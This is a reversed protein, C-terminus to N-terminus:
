FYKMLLGMLLTFNLPKSIYDNCGAKLAKERDDVKGFATQAIIVVETNCQRIRRTAEYGDMDPMEIDMMVLDIDPNNYCVSVAEAGTRAILIEKSMKKVATTILFESIEDDEVILIKLNKAHSQVGNGSVHNDPANEMEQDTKYPITFFFTSGKDVESEAWITGGHKETFDKCLILGLGTSPEGDTGKRHTQEDLRFLKDQMVKSMGIGTDRVSVVVFNGPIKKAAITIEGGNPTFKVANFVLNRMLSEIMQEDAKVVLDEPIQLKISIQKKDADDQILMISSAVEDALLFSEPKFSILGRQMRSWELLNELLHFLMNASKRMSVAFMKIEDLTLSPLEEEMMRTLGLFANFPSRLDHAIISFFKDKEANIKQLEENKRKIEEEALKRNSINTAFVAIGKVTPYVRIEFDIKKSDIEFINEFTRSHQSLLVESYISEAKRTFSTDPFLDHFSKGIATQAPILLISESAKNWYICHLNKDMEFFVDTISDALERSHKESQRLAEEAQKYDTIDRNSERRGLWMGKEDHVTTCSHSIWRIIGAPTIIRFDIEANEGKAEQSTSRYHEIVKPKDDPHTIEILFDPDAMFEATTYGTIRECSSSVYRYTGDPLRWAEWNYTFDAITRFKEESIKLAEEVQKNETIDIATVFCEDEDEIFIGSLFVNMTPKDQPKLIVECWERTNCTFVNQLFNRFAPKTDDSVYYSFKNYKLISREKGLMAAGRLNLMSIKGEKSLTFYGAPAFDYLETYKQAAVQAIQAKARELEKNQMELEVQYVQLEHILKLAEDESLQSTAIGPEKKLWNEAKRRLKVSGTIPNKQKKM